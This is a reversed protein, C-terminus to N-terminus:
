VDLLVDSVEIGEQSPHVVTLKPCCLQRSPTQGSRTHSLQCKGRPSKRGRGSTAGLVSTGSSTGSSVGSM